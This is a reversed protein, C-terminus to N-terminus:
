ARVMHNRLTSQIVEFVQVPDLSLQEAIEQYTWGDDFLNLIKRTHRAHARRVPYVYSIKDSATKAL